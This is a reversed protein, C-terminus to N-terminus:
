KLDLTEDLSQPLSSGFGNKIALSIAKGTDVVMKGNVTKFSVKTALEHTKSNKLFFNGITGAIEFLFQSVNKFDGRDGILVLNKLFPKVYGKMEGNESQAAAYLTLTGEKFTLPVTRRSIPNIKKLDFNKLEANMSWELPTHNLRAEAVLKLNATGQVSGIATFMSLAQPDTPTLNNAIVDVPDIFFNQEPPLGGVDSFELRCNKCHVRELDFPITADKVNKADQKAQTVGVGALANITDTTVQINLRNLMVDAIVRGKILERWALSVDVQHIALFADPQKKKLAGTLDDFSYAMRFIHLHLQEIHMEYLPSFNALYHNLNKLLIGPLIARAILVLALFGVLWYRYTRRWFSEKMLTSLQFFRAM